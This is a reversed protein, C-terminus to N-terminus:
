GLHRLFDGIDLFEDFDAPPLIGFTLTGIGNGEIAAWVSCM